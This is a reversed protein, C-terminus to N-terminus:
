VLNLFYRNIENLHFRMRADGLIALYADLVFLAEEVSDCSCATHLLATLRPVTEDQIYHAFAEIIYIAQRDECPLTCALLGRTFHKISRLSIEIASVFEDKHFGTSDSLTRELKLCCATQARMIASYCGEVFAPYTETVAVAPTM